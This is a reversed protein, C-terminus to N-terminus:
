ASLVRPLTSVNPNPYPCGRGVMELAASVVVDVTTSFVNETLANIATGSLQQEVIYLHYLTALYAATLGNSRIKKRQQHVEFFVKYM